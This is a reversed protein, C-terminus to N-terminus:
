IGNVVLGLDQRSVKLGPTLGGHTCSPNIVTTNNYTNEQTYTQTQTQRRVVPGVGRGVTGRSGGGCVSEGAFALVQFDCLNVPLLCPFVFAACCVTDQCRVLPADKDSDVTLPAWVARSKETRELVAPAERYTGEAQVWSCVAFGSIWVSAIKLTSRSTM